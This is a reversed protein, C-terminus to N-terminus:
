PQKLLTFLVLVCMNLFVSVYVSYYTFGGCNYKRFLDKLLLVQELHMRAQDVATGRPLAEIRPASLRRSHNTFTSIIFM